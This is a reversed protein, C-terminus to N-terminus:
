RSGIKCPILKEELLLLEHGSKTSGSSAPLFLSKGPYLLWLSVNEQASRSKTYDLHSGWSFCAALAPQCSKSTSGREPEKNVELVSGKVLLPHNSPQGVENGTLPIMGLFWWIGLSLLAPAGPAWDGEAPPGTSCLLWLLTGQCGKDHDM